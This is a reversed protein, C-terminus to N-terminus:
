LECMPACPRVHTFMPWMYVLFMKLFKKSSPAWPTYIFISNGMVKIVNLVLKLYAKKDYGQKEKREEKYYFITSNKNRM